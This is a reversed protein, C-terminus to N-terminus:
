LNPELRNDHKALALTLPTRLRAYRRTRGGERAIRARTYYKAERVDTPFTGGLEVLFLIIVVLRRMASSVLRVFGSYNNTTVTSSGQCMVTDIEINRDPSAIGEDQTTNTDLDIYNMHQRISPNIAM